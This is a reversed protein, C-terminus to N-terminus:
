SFRTRLWYPREACGLELGLRSGNTITNTNTATIADLLVCNSMSGTDNNSNVTVTTGGDAHSIAPPIALLLCAVVLVPLLQHKGRM